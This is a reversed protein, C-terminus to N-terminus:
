APVIDPLGPYTLGITLATRYIQNMLPGQINSAFSQGVGVTKGLAPIVTIPSDNIGVRCSLPLTLGDVPTCIKLRCILGKGITQLRRFFPSGWWAM